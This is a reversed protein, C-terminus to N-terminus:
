RNAFDSICLLNLESNSIKQLIKTVYNMPMMSRRAWSTREPTPQDTCAVNTVIARGIPGLEKVIDTANRKVEQTVTESAGHKAQTVACRRLSRVVRVELFSMRLTLIFEFSATRGKPIILGKM